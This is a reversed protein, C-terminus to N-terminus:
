IREGRGVLFFPTVKDSGKKIFVEGELLCGGHEGAQNTREKEGGQEDKGTM